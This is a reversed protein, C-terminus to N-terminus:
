GFKRSLNITFKYMDSRYYAKELEIIRGDQNKITREAILVHSHPPINLYSANEEAITGSGITQSAEAFWIGLENEEFEYLSIDNLDYQVLAKGISVPFYHCEVGIPISDAYRVRKIFYAEHFGTQELIPSPPITKYYTILKAGPKMGMQRITDTTSTLNGLWENIPKLSVFTGTGHRKELIGERVLQNIAERVTSRSVQYEEMFNRESPIQGTLVGNAVQGEIIGKLQVHLPLSSEYDLRM